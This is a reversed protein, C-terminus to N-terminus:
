GSNIALVYDRRNSQLEAAQNADGGHFLKSPRTGCAASPVQFCFKTFRITDTASSQRLGSCIKRRRECLFVCCILQTWAASAAAITPTSHHETSATGKQEAAQDAHGGHFLKSPRTGCATSQVQLCIKAFWITDVASSQRLGSRIKRRRECLSVFERVNEVASLCVRM